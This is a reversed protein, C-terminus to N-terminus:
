CVLCYQLHQGLYQSEV